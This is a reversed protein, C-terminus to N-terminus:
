WALMLPNTEASFLSEIPSRAAINVPLIYSFLVYYSRYHTSYTREFHTQSRESNTRVLGARCVTSSPLYIEGQEVYSAFLCCSSHIFSIPHTTDLIYFFLPSLITSHLRIDPDSSKGKEKGGEREKGSQIAYGM